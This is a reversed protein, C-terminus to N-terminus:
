ETVTFKEATGLTLAHYEPHYMSEASVPPVAFVGPTVVRVKYSWTYTGKANLREADGFGLYRDFRKELRYLPTGNGGANGRFFNRSRTMLMEDEIEFCGPLLDCVVFEGIRSDMCKLKLEVVLLQGRKAEAVELGKEDLYRRSLEMGYASPEAKEPVVHSRCFAQMTASGTNEVKLLRGAPLRVAGEVTKETSDTLVKAQFAGNKQRACYRALGLAAWANDQTTGWHGQANRAALIAQMLQKNQEHEPLIEGLLWLAIGQRRLLSDFGAGVKDDKLFDGALLENLMQMGEAAHGCKVLTMALLFRNFGDCDKPAILKSYSFATSPSLYSLLFTAMVRDAVPRSTEGLFQKLNQQISTKWASDMPFGNFEAELLFFYAFLSGELWVEQSGNWMSMWGDSKRMAQLNMRAVTIKNKVDLAYEAPLLGAECLGPVALLPFAGATVQELCGYPYEGLWKLSGTIALAVTGVEVSGYGGLELMKSEGPELTLVDLKEVAPVAARVVVSGEAAVTTEGLKLEGHLRSRGEKDGAKAILQVAGSAGKEARFSGDTQSLAVPGESALHWAAESLACRHNFGELSIRFEDGPAVVRPTALRLTADRYMTLEAEGSGTREADVAVAMVRMAGTHNPLRVTAQAMGTGDIKIRGLYFVAAKELSEERRPLAAMDKSAYGGGIKETGANIVPYLMSYNEWVKLPNELPGFFAGHLDPTRYDTLALIGMDVGWVIAEGSVPAGDADALSVAVTVEEEPRAEAPATVKVALRRKDQKVPLVVFGKLLQPDSATDKRSVMAVSAFWNGCHVDSPIPLEVQNRGVHVEFEMAEAIRNLGSMLVGRGEAPAEFTVVASDGPLYEPKDWTFVLQRPDKLHVGGEGFWHWFNTDLRGRGQADKLVLRFEGNGISDDFVLLGNVLEVRGSRKLKSVHEWVREFHGETEKLVYEWDCAYLEYDLPFDKLDVTKGEPTVGVLQVVCKKQNETIKRAGVYFEANHVTLTSGAVVARGGQAPVCSGEVQFVIPLGVAEVPWKLKLEGSFDGDGNTQVACNFNLGLSKEERYGFSYDPYDKPQFAGYRGTVSVNVNAQRVPLGFYYMAKGQAQLTQTEEQMACDMSLKVQDPIYDGVLFSTRGYEKGGPVDMHVAYQGLPAEAPIEFVAEYLGAEDGPLVQTNVKAGVADLLTFEAPVGGKTRGEADRLSAFVHMTEGTRCIGRECFLVAKESGPAVAGACGEYRLFSLDDEKSAVLLNLFDEKDALPQLPLRCFGTGDTVAEGLIQSKYSVLQIKVGEVPLQSTLSHVSVVVEKESSTAVMGLDTVVVSRMEECWKKKADRIRVLYVGAKRDIGAKKLDLCVHATRNKKAEVPLVTESLLYAYQTESWRLFDLVRSPYAQYVEVALKGEDLNVTSVPLNWFDNGLTFLTGQSKFKVQTPLSLSSVVTVCESGSGDKLTVTYLTEPQFKGYIDLGRGWCAVHFKEPLAPSITVNKEEVNEVHRNLRLELDGNGYFFSRTIVLPEEAPEKKAKPEEAEKMVMKAAEDEALSVSPKEEVPVAGESKEASPKGGTVSAESPSSIEPTSSVASGGRHMLAVNGVLSLVLLVCLGVILAKTGRSM